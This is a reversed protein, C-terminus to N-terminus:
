RSIPWRLKLGRRKSAQKRAKAANLFGSEFEPYSWEPLGLVKRSRNLLKLLEKLSLIKAQALGLAAQIDAGAEVISRNSKHQQAM